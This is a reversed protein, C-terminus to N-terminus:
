GREHRAATAEEHAEREWERTNPASAVRQGSDSPPPSEAPRGAHADDRRATNLPVSRWGLREMEDAVVRAVEGEGGTQAVALPAKGQDRRLDNVLEEARSWSLSVHGQAGGDRSWARNALARYLETSFEDDALREGLRTLDHRLTSVLAEPDSAM